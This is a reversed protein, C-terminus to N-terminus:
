SVDYEHLEARLADYREVLGPFESANKPKYGSWALLGDYVFSADTMEYAAEEREGKGVHDEASRIHSDFDKIAQEPDM